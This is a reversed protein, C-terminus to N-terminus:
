ISIMRHEQGISPAPMMFDRQELDPPLRCPYLGFLYPQMVYGRAQAVLRLSPSFWPTPSTFPLLHNRIYAAPM